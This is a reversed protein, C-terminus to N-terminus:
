EFWETLPFCTVLEQMECPDVALIKDEIPERAQEETDRNSERLQDPQDELGGSASAPGKSKVVFHLENITEAPIAFPTLTSGLSNWTSVSLQDRSVRHHWVAERIHPHGRRKSEFRYDSTIEGILYQRKAPDYTVVTDEMKIVQAFRWLVSAVNQNSASNAGPYVGALRRQLDRQSKDKIEGAEHWGVAVMGKDSEDILFGGEGAGVMWANKSM